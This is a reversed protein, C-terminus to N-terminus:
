SGPRTSASGSRSARIPLLQVGVRLEGGGDVPLIDVEQVDAGGLGVGRWQDEGVAPRVRHHLIQSEDAWQGIRHAHRSEASANSTTIGDRGPNAKEPGVWSFPQLTVAGGPRPRCRHAPESVRAVTRVAVVGARDNGRLLAAEVGFM